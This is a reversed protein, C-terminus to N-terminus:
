ALYSYERLATSAVENAYYPEMEADRVAHFNHATKHWDTAFTGEERCEDCLDVTLAGRCELCSWRIGVIPEALCSDCRYGLHVAKASRLAPTQVIKSTSASVSAARDAIPPERIRSGNIVGDDNSTTYDPFSSRDAQKGKRDHLLATGAEFMSQRHQDSDSSSSFDVDIDDEDDDDESSSTFDVYKKRKSSGSASKAGNAPQKRKWKIPSGSDRGRESSPARGGGFSTWNTTDPARGPVPLGARSLKIFYKQVRSAVQRMTRTGLAIAIKRWRDNAVEEEPYALLLEELQKQEEDSWPLNFNVPKPGADDNRNPGRRGPKYQKSRKPTGASFANTKARGRGRKPIASRTVGESVMAPYKSRAEQQQQPYQSGLYMMSKGAPRRETTESTAPPKVFSMLPLDAEDPSNNGVHEATTSQVLQNYYEDGDSDESRGLDYGGDHLSSTTHMRKKQGGPSRSREESVQRRFEELIQPTLTKQSGARGTPTGPQTASTKLVNCQPQSNDADINTSSVGPESLSVSSRRVPATNARDMHPVLYASTKAGTANELSFNASHQMNGLGLAPAQLLSQSQHQRRPSHEPTAVATLGTLLGSGASVPLRSGRKAVSKVNTPTNYGGTSAHRGSAHRRISKAIPKSGATENSALLEKSPLVHTQVYKMYEQAAAPEAYELYSDVYVPPIDVVSQQAPAKPAAGAVLSEVYELPHALVQDRLRQLMDMDSKARELQSKLTEIAHFLLMYEENNRLVDLLQPESNATKETEPSTVEDVQLKEFLM